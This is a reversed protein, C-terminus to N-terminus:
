LNFRFGIIAVSAFKWLESEKLYAPHKLVIQWFHFPLYCHNLFLLNIVTIHTRFHLISATSQLISNLLYFLKAPKLWRERCPNQAVHTMVGMRLAGIHMEHISNRLFISHSSSLYIQFSERISNERIDLCKLQNKKRLQARCMSWEIIGPKM